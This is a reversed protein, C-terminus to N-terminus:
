SLFYCLQLIFSIVTTDNIKALILQRPYLSLSINRSKEIRRLKSKIQNKTNLAAKLLIEAINHRGTKTTSSAPTSGVISLCSTLKIVQPQSDLAVKKQLECLRARIWM